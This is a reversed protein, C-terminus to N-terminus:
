NTSPYVNTTLILATISALFMGLDNFVTSMVMTLEKEKIDLQESQRMCYLVNVYSAGGMFGVFVMFVWLPIIDSIWLTFSNICWFIFFVLQLLTLVWVHKIKFCQLSSRSCFVGVQYCFNFIVFANVFV